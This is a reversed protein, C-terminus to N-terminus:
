RDRIGERRSAPSPDKRKLTDSLYLSHDAGFTVDNCLNTDGPLPYRAKPAGSAIDFARLVTNCRGKLLPSSRTWSESRRLGVLTKDQADAFLGLLFKYAKDPKRMDIFLDAIAAGPKARYVMPGAQAGLYLSGDPGMAISEPSAKADIPTIETPAAITASSAALAFLVTFIPPRKM